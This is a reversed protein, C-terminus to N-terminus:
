KEDLMRRAAQETLVRATTELRAQGGGRGTKSAAPLALTPGLFELEIYTSEDPATVGKPLERFYIQASVARELQADDKDPVRELLMAESGRFVLFADADFGLKTNDYAPHVRFWRDNLREARAAGKDMVKADLTSGARRRVYLAEPPPVQMVSWAALAEPKGPQKRTLVFTQRLAPSSEQRPSEIAIQREVQVGTVRDVPSRLTMENATARVIEYPGVDITSPPPWGWAAQPWAWVKDGGYNVFPGFTGIPNLPSAWVQETPPVGKYLYPRPYAAFSMVRGIKPAVKVNASRDGLLYVEGWEARGQVRHPKTPACGLLMSALLIAFAVPARRSLHRKM